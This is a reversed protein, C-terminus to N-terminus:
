PTGLEFSLVPLELNKAEEIAWFQADDRRPYTPGKQELAEWAERISYGFVIVRWGSPCPSVAVLKYGTQPTPPAQILSLFV